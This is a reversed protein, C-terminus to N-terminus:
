VRDLKQWDCTKPLSTCMNVYMCASRATHDHGLILYVTMVGMKLAYSVIDIIKCVKNQLWRTSNRHM